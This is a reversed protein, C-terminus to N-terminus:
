DIYCFLPEFFGVPVYCGGARMIGVMASHFYLNRDMSVAIKDDTELGMGRLWRAIQNGKKNLDLYSMSEFDSLDMEPSLEHYWRVAISNPHSISRRTLYDTILQVPALHPYALAIGEEDTTREWVSMLESPLDISSIPSDPTTKSQIILAKLQSLIQTSICPHILKASGSLFIQSHFTDYSFTLPYEMHSRSSGSDSVRFLAMCPYQKENLDLAQRVTSLTVPIQSHQHLDKALTAVITEYTDSEKWSIRVFTLRGGELLQVALLVDSAACYSGLVQAIGVIIHLIGDPTAQPINQAATHAEDRSERSTSLNPWELVSYSQLFRQAESLVLDAEDPDSPSCLTM